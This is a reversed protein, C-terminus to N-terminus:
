VWVPEHQRVHGHGPAAPFAHPLGAGRAPGLGLQSMGPDHFRTRVEHVPTLDDSWFTTQGGDYVALADVPLARALASALAAPHMPAETDRAMTALEAEYQARVARMKPLWSTDVALKPTAGLLAQGTDALM